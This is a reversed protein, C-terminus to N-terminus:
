RSHRRRLHDRRGAQARGADAPTGSSSRRPRGPRPRIPHQIAPRDRADAHRLPHGPLRAPRAQRRHHRRGRQDVTQAPIAFGISVASAAPPIYAVNMGVVQSNADVLAGGSNGPSIAADTQILDVLAQSEQASGPITRELGSIIGVTVTDDFGLPSGLAVALQGVQPQSQDFSAAPLGTKDVKLVAVDTTPDTGVLTADVQEGSAFSVTYTNGAPSSTTTPSSTATLATSSAAAWATRPRSRSSAPSSTRSSRSSRASPTSPARQRRRKFQPRRRFRPRLPRAVRVPLAANQIPTTGTAPSTPSSASGTVQVCGVVFAAILSLAAISQAIKHRSM